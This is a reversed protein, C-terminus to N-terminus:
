GNETHHIRQQKWASTQPRHSKQQSYHQYKLSYNCNLIMKFGTVTEALCDNLTFALFHM